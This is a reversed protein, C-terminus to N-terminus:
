REGPDTAPVPRRSPRQQSDTRVTIKPAVTTQVWAKMRDVRAHSLANTLAQTHANLVTEKQNQVNAYLGDEQALQIIPKSPGSPTPSVGEPPADIRTVVNFLQPYRRRVEVRTAGDIRDLEAIYSQGADMLLNAQAPTLGLEKRLLDHVASASQNRYYTLSDHFVRWALWAPVPEKARVQAVAISGVGHLLLMSLIVASACKRAIAIRDIGKM